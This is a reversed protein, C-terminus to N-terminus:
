FGVTNISLNCYKCIVCQRMERSAFSSGLVHLGLPGQSIKIGEIHFFPKLRNTEDILFPSCLSGSNLASILRSTGSSILHELAM